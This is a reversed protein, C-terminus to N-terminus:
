WSGRWLLGVPIPWGMYIGEEDKVMILIPICLYAACVAQSFLRGFNYSCASLDYTLKGTWALLFNNCTKGLGVLKFSSHCRHLLLPAM